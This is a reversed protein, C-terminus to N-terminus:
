LIVVCVRLIFIYFLQFLFCFLLVRSKASVTDLAKATSTSNPTHRLQLIM